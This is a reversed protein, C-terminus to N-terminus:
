IAKIQHLRIESRTLLKQISQYRYDPSFEVKAYNALFCDQDIIVVKVFRTGQISESEDFDWSLQVWAKGHNRVWSDELAM